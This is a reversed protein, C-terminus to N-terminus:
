KLLQEIAYEGHSQKLCGCSIINGKQLTDRTTIITNGCDCQCLWKQSRGKSSINEEFIPKIVTLKGFKENTMDIYYHPKKRCQTCCTRKGSIVSQKLFVEINGCKCQCKVYLNTKNEYKIHELITLDGYINGIQSNLNQKARNKNNQILAEKAREKQLCGCSQTNKLQDGRIIKETGCDCRCLWCVRRKNSTIQDPAREIVTLRGYREGIKNKRIQIMTNNEM